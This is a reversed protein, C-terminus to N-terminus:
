QISSLYIDSSVVSLGVNIQLGSSGEIDTQKYCWIKKVFHRIVHAIYCTM